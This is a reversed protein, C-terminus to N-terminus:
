FVPWNDSSEGNGSPGVQLQEAKISHKLCFKLWFFLEAHTGKEHRSKLERHIYECRCKPVTFMQNKLLQQIFKNKNGLLWDLKSKVLHIWFTKRQRHILTLLSFNDSYIQIEPLGSGLTVQHCSFASSSSEYSVSDSFFTRFTNCRSRSSLLCKCVTKVHWADLLLRTAGM